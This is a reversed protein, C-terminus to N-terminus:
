LNPFDILRKKNCNFAGYYAIDFRALTTYLQIESETLRDGHLYRQKSLHHQLEELSFFL